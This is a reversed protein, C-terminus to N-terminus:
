FNIFMQDEEDESEENDEMVYNQQLATSDMTTIFGNPNKLEKPEIDFIDPLIVDITLENNSANGYMLSSPIGFAQDCSASIGCISNNDGGYM